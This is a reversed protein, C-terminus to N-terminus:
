PATSGRCVALSVDQEACPHWESAAHLAAMLNDNSIQVGKARGTTGSTYLQLVVDDGSSEL